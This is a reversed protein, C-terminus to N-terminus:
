QDYFIQTLEIEDELLSLNMESALAKLTPAEGGDPINQGGLEAISEGRSGRVHVSFVRGGVRGRAEYIEINHYGKQYLRYAATLGAFGAGIVIVKSKGESDTRCSNLM